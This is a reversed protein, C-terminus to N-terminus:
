LSGLAVRGSDFIRRWAVDMFHAAGGCRVGTVGGETLAESLAAGFSATQQAITTGPPVPYEPHVHVDWLGPLLYPGKLDIVTAGATNPAGNSSIVQAIRGNEVVVSTQPRISPSVGDILNANTLILNM